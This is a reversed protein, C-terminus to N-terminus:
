RVFNTKVKKEQEPLGFERKGLEISKMLFVANRALTRMTQMGEEDQQAEGPTNGHVMNWYNSSVVPMGSITFYKNLVDMTATTGGRRAVAIAAGVKFRKDFHSSCFLRDMFSIVTGNPSAFYVPAGVILCDAKEFLASVQCVIDGKACIDTKSCSSCANCGPIDMSGINVTTVGIGNERFIKEIEQLALATNGHAHPSGNVLLAEMTYKASIQTNICCIYVM